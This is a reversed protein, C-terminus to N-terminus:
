KDANQPSKLFNRIQRIAAKFAEDQFAFYKPDKKKEPYKRTVELYDLGVCESLRFHGLKKLLSKYTKLPKKKEKKIFPYGQEEYKKKEKQVANIIDKSYDKMVEEFKAQTWDTGIHMTIPVSESPPEDIYDPEVYGIEVYRDSHDMLPTKNPSFLKDELPHEFWDVDSVEIGDTFKRRVKYPISLFPKKPWQECYYPFLVELLQTSSEKIYWDTNVADREEQSNCSKLRKNYKRVTDKVRDIQQRFDNDVFYRTREREWLWCRQHDLLGSTGNKTLNAFRVDRNLSNKSSNWILKDKCPHDISAGTKKKAVM